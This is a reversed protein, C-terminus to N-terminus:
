LDEHLNHSLSDTAEQDTWQTQADLFEATALDSDSETYHGPEGGPAQSTLDPQSKADIATRDVLVKKSRATASHIQKIGPNQQYTRATDVDGSLDALHPPPAEPRQPGAKWNSLGSEDSRSASSDLGGTCMEEAARGLSKDATSSGTRPRLQEFQAASMPAHGLEDEVGASRGQDPGAMYGPGVASDEPNKERGFNVPHWDAKDKDHARRRKALSGQELLARFAEAAFIVNTSSSPRSSFAWRTEHPKTFSVFSATGVSEKEIDLQEEAHVPAPSIPPPPVWCAEKQTNSEEEAYTRRFRLGHLSPEAFHQRELDERLRALEVPSLTLRREADSASVEDPSVLIGPSEFAPSSPPNDSKGGDDFAQTGSRETTGAFSPAISNHVAEDLDGEDSRTSGTSAGTSGIGIMERQRSESDKTEALLLDRGQLEIMSEGMTEDNEFPQQDGQAPHCEFSETQAIDAEPLKHDDCLSDLLIEYADMDSESGDMRCLEILLRLCAKTREPDALKRYGKLARRAHLHAPAIKNQDKSLQALSMVDSLFEASLTPGIRERIAMRRLLMKEAQQLSGQELYIACLAETIELQMEVARRNKMGPIGLRDLSRLLLKEAAQHSGAALRQKGRDLMLRTMENQLDTDSDVDEEGEGQLQAAQSDPFPMEPVSAWGQEDKFEYVTSKSGLWRRLAPSQPPEIFSDIRSAGSKAETETQTTVTTSADSIVSGASRVCELFHKMTVQHEEDQPLRPTSKSFDMAESLRHAIRRIDKQLETLNPVLSVEAITQYAHQNVLIVAQLSLQLTDRCSQIHVRIRAIRDESRNLRLQKRYDDLFTTEKSVELMIDRLQELGRKGEALSQTVGDWLSGLHGSSREANIREFAARMAELVARLSQVDNQLETVSSQVVAAADHLKQLQYAVTGTVHLLTLVGTVISLPEPM